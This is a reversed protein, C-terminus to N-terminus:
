GRAAPLGGRSRPVCEAALAARLGRAEAQGGEQAPGRRRIGPRLVLHAQEITVLAVGVPATPDVTIPDGPQPKFVPIGQIDGHNILEAVANSFGNLRDELEPRNLSFLIDLIHQAADADRIALFAQILNIGTAPGHRLADYRPAVLDIIQAIHGTAGLDGSITVLVDARDGATSLVEEYIELAGKLDKADLKERAALLRPAVGTVSPDFTAAPTAPQGNTPSSSASKGALRDFFGM